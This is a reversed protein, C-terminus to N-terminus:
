VTVAPLSALFRGFPTKELRRRWPPAALLTRLDDPTDCDPLEPLLALSKGAAALRARTLAAVTATSWPMDTFLAPCYGARTLGLAYYGGDTAPGLVADNGALERAARTLVEGTVLPLDSGILVAADAERLTATFAAAMRAGLDGEAQARFTRDPGCLERAAPLEEAPAYYVIAPLGSADAAGLVNAVMARYAALAAADGIGAALRTKVRGPLPAKCFVLLRVDM